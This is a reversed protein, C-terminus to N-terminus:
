TPQIARLFELIGRIEWEELDPATAMYEDAAERTAEPGKTSAWANLRRQVERCAGADLGLLAAASEKHPSLRITRDRGRPAVYRGDPDRSLIGFALGTAFLAPPSVWLRRRLPILDQALAFTATTHMPLRGRWLMEAYHLRYEGIRRLAYLPVGRHTKVMVLAHRQGTDVPIVEPCLRALPVVLTPWGPDQTDVAIFSLRQTKARRLLRPDYNWLPHAGEVVRALAEEVEDETADETMPRTVGYENVRQGMLHATAAAIRGKLWAVVEEGDRRSREQWEGLHGARRMVDATSSALDPVAHQYFREARQPDIVSQIPGPELLTELAYAARKEQEDFHGATEHLHGALEDLDKRARAIAAQAAACIDRAGRLVLPTSELEFRERVQRVHMDVAHRRQRVARRLAFFLVGLVGVILLAMAGMAWGAHAPAISRRVWQVGYIPPFVLLAAVSLLTVPWPPMSMTASRLAYYTRSVTAMSQNLRAQHRNSQRQVERRLQRMHEGLLDLFRYAAAMGDAGSDQLAYAVERAVGETVESQMRESTEAVGANLAPLCQERVQQLAARARSEIQRLPTTRLPSLLRDVDVAHNTHRMHSELVDLRLGIHEVLAHMRKETGSPAQGHLIREIVERGLRAAAWEALEAHPVYRVGLGFSEFARARRRLTATRYRRSKHARYATGIGLFTMAYLWVCVMEVQEQEDLLTYGVENVSDVMFCGDAFPALERSLPVQTLESEYPHGRAHYEIEKLAAYAMAEEAPAPSIASPLYLVGSPLPNLGLQQCVLATFCSVDIAVGGGVTDGLDAIVYIDVQSDGILGIDAVHLAEVSSFSSLQPISELLFEQLADAAQFLAARMWARTRDRQAPPMDKLSAPLWAPWDSEDEYVPSSLAVYQVGDSESLLARADPAYEIIVPLVTRVDGHRGRVFQVYQLVTQRAQTGLGIVITPRIELM